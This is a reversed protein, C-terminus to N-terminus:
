QTIVAPMEHHFVDDLITQIIEEMMVDEFVTLAPLFGNMEGAGDGPAKLIHDFVQTVLILQFQGCDRLARHFAQYTIELALKRRLGQRGYMRIHLALGLDNFVPQRAIGTHRELIKALVDQKAVEAVVDLDERLHVTIGNAGAKEALLAATVPDPVNVRRAQRVTAVHDVNVGLRIM